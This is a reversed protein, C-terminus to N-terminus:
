AIYNLGDDICNTAFHPYLYRFIVKHGISNPHVNDATGYQESTEDDHTYFYTKNSDIWPKLVCGYYAEPYYPIGKAACIEGMVKVYNDDDTRDGDPHLLGWPSQCYCIIPTTPYAAILADWFSNAYGALTTNGTDTKEGVPIGASLDNFSIAVGIIDPSTISSIRNIYPSLKAFGTGSIGLNQVTCGAWEAMYTTWNKKATYNHATISDGIVTIRKGFLISRVDSKSIYVSLSYGLNKYSCFRMKGSEPVIYTVYEYPQDSMRIKSLLTGNADYLCAVPLASNNGFAKFTIEDNKSVEIFDVYEWGNSDALDGTPTIYKGTQITPITTNLLKYVSSSLREVNYEDNTEIIRLSFSTTDVARYSVRITGSFDHVYITTVANREPAQYAVVVNNKLLEILRLDTYTAGPLLQILYKKDPLATYTAVNYASDTAIIGSKTLRKGTQITASETDFQVVRYNEILGSYQNFNIAGEVDSLQRSLDTLGESIKTETWHARNWLEGGSGIATNCKYLTDSYVVFDGVSYASNSDYEPAILKEVANIKSNSITPGIIEWSTGNWRKFVAM